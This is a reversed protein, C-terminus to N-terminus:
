CRLRGGTSHPRQMAQGQRRACSLPSSTSQFSVLGVPIGPCISVVVALACDSPPAACLSMALTTGESGPVFSPPPPLFLPEFQFQKFSVTM